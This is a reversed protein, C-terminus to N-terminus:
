RKENSGSPTNGPPVGGCVGERIWLRIGCCDSMCRYIWQSCITYPSYRWPYRNPKQIPHVINWMSNFGRAITIIHLILGNKHNKDENIAIYALGHKLQYGRQLSVRVTSPVQLSDWYLSVMNGTYANWDYLYSPRIIIIPIGMSPFLIKINLCPGLIQHHYCYILM